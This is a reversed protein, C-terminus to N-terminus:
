KIFKKLTLSLKNLVKYLKGQPCSGARHFGITNCYKCKKPKTM